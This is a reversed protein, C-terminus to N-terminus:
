VSETIFVINNGASHHASNTPTGAFYTIPRHKKSKYNKREIEADNGLIM